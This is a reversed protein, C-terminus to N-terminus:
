RHVGIEDVDEFSIDAGPQELEKRMRTYALARVCAGGYGTLPVLPTDTIHM